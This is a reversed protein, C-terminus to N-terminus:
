AKGRKRNGHRPKGSGRTQHADAEPTPELEMKLRWGCVALWRNMLGITPNSAWREARSVAQQTVALREALETQTLGASERAQRLLYGPRDREWDPLKGWRRLTSWEIFSRPRGRSLRLSRDPKDTKSTM